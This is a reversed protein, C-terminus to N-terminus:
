SPPFNFKYALSILVSGVANFLSFAIRGLDIRETQLMICMVVIFGVGATGLIYYFEM